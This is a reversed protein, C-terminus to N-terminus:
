LPFVATTLAQSVSRNTGGATGGDDTGEIFLTYTFDRSVLSERDLLNGTTELLGTEANITFKNNPAPDDGLLYIHITISPSNINIGYDM